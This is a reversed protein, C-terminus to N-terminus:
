AEEAAPPVLGGHKEGYHAVLEDHTEFSPPRRMGADACAPCKLKQQRGVLELHGGDILAQEYALPALTTFRHGTQVPEREGPPTFSHPGVVKYERKM